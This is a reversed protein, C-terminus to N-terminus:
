GWGKMGDENKESWSAWNKGVSVDCEVKFGGKMMDNILIKSGSELVEKVWHVCNEVKGEECEFMVSDHVTNCYGFEELMGKDELERLKEFVFGFANSQVPFAMAKDHEKGWTVRISGSKYDWESNYVQYFRQCRGYWNVLIKDRHARMRVYGKYREVKPFMKALMNQIEKAHERSKIYPANALWLRNPGLGLQNGLVAPKAQRTRGKEFEPDKRLEKCIRKIEDNELRLDIPAKGLIHSYVASHIDSQSLRYYNEDEALFGLMAVHFSKFDFEIFRYRDKARIVRRFLQGMKNHKSANQVNPNRSGLQGTPADYRWDPHVKGDEKPEWNKVMNKATSAISRSNVVITLFEDGTKKALKELADKGTTENGTKHDRPLVWKKEEGKTECAQKKWDIYRKMGQSSLKFEKMKYWEGENSVGYGVQKAWVTVREDLEKEEIVGNSKLENIKKRVEPPMRKYIKREKVEEPVSKEILKTDKLLKEELKDKFREWKGRDVSIGRESAQRQIKEIELVHEMFGQYLNWGSVEHKVKEMGERLYPYIYRLADVDACPYISGVEHVTHKWPFPFKAMSAVTQLHKRVGGAVKGEDKGEKKVVGGAAYFHKFMWLTDIVLGNVEIGQARLIPNDFLWVNHAVKANSLALLEGVKKRMASGPSMSFIFAEHRKISFQITYISYDAKDKEDEDRDALDEGEIDYALWIKPNEKCKAILYEIEEMGADVKYVKKEIEDFPNWKDEVFEIAKEVDREVVYSYEPQGEKVKKLDHIPMVYGYATEYVFGHIYEISQKDHLAKKLYQETAHKGSTLTLTYKSENLIEADNLLGHRRACEGSANHKVRPACRVVSSYGFDEWQRGLRKIIGEWVSGGKGYKTFVKGRNADGQEVEGLVLRIGLRGITTSNFFGYSKVYLPCGICETPKRM